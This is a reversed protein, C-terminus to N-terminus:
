RRYSGDPVHPIPEPHAMCWDVARENVRYYTSGDGSLDPTAEDRIITEVLERIVQKEAEPFTDDETIQRAVFRWMTEHDADWNGNGNRYAQDVLKGCIRILEGQLTKAPGSPPVHADWLRGHEHKWNYPAPAPPPSM